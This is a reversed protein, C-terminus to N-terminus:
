LHQWYDHRTSSMATTSKYKFSLNMDIYVYIVVMNSPFELFFLSRFHSAFMQYHGEPNKRTDVYSQQM